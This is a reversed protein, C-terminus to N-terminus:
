VKGPGDESTKETSSHDIDKAIGHTLTPKNANESVNMAMAEQLSWDGIAEDFFQDYDLGRYEHTLWIYMKRKFISHFV